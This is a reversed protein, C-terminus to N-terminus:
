ANRAEDRLRKSPRPLTYQGHRISQRLEEGSCVACQIVMPVNGRKEIHRKWLRIARRMERDSLKYQVFVKLSCDWYRSIHELYQKLNLFVRARHINRGM